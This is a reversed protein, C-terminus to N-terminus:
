VLLVAQECRSRQLSASLLNQNGDVGRDKGRSSIQCGAAIPLTGGVRCVLRKCGSVRWFAQGLHALALASLEGVDCHSFVKAM